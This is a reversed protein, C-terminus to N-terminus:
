GDAQKKCTFGAFSEVHSLRVEGYLKQLRRELSEMTEYPPTFYGQKECFNRVFFDTRRNVGKVYMCGCFIGGNKLVRQTERYAGDKNPFVHFGNLSLVIDFSEDEFPLKEVDGQLFAVNSIGHKAARERATALMGESYDTCVIDAKSLGQYFPISLVGTGVPVELMRGSFNEPIGAFAQKIYLPYSEDTLQWFCRMAFRGLWGSNMMMNDFVKAYSGVRQYAQRVEAKKAM